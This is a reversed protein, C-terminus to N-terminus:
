PVAPPTTICQAVRDKATQMEKANKEEELKMEDFMKQTEEVKRSHKGTVQNIIKGPYWGEQIKELKHVKMEAAKHLKSYMVQPCNLLTACLM